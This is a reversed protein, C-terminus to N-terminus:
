IGLQDEDIVVTGETPPLTPMMMADKPIEGTLTKLFEVIDAIEDAALDKNLQLKAMVRVAEGLELVKGDHFYPATLAINRLTPVKFNVRSSPGYGYEAEIAADRFTPFPRRFQGGLLAGDHCSTCRNQRFAELGRKAQDSIAAADGKMFKDFPSNPTILTREYAAVAKAFRDKTIEGGFVRQFAEVYGPIRKLRPIIDNEFTQDGMEPPAEPPGVAQDELTAARTDWFQRFNFAANFVTPASVPGTLGHIGASVMRNDSGGAM